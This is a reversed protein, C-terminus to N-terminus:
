PPQVKLVTLPKATKQFSRIVPLPRGAVAREHFQEGCVPWDVRAKFTLLTRRIERVLAGAVPWLGGGVFTM